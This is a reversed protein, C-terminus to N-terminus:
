QLLEALKSLTDQVFVTLLLNNSFYKSLLFDRARKRKDRPQSRILLFCNNFVAIGKTCSSLIYSYYNTKPGVKVRIKGINPSRLFSLNYINFFNSRLVNLSINYFYTYSLVTRTKLMKKNQKFPTTHFPAVQSLEILFFFNNAQLSRPCIKWRGTVFNELDLVTFILM